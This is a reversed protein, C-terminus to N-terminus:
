IMSARSRSSVWLQVPGCWSHRRFKYLSGVKKAGSISRLCMRNAYVLLIHPSHYRKESSRVVYHPWSTSPIGVNEAFKIFEALFSRCIFTSHFLANYVMIMYALWRAYLLPAGPLLTKSGKQVPPRLSQSCVLFSRAEVAEVDAQLEAFSATLTSALTDLEYIDWREFVQLIAPVNCKAVLREDRGHLTAEVFERLSM